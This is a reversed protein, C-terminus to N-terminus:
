KLKAFVMRGTAPRAPGALENPEKARAQGQEAKPHSARVTARGRGGGVTLLPAPVQDEPARGVVDVIQHRVRWDPWRPYLVQEKRTDRRGRVL